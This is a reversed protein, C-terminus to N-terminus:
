KKWYFRNTNTRSYFGSVTLQASPSLTFAITPLLINRATPLIRNILRNWLVIMAFVCFRPRCIPNWALAHDIPKKRLGGKLTSRSLSFSPSCFDKRPCFVTGVSFCFPRNSISKALTELVVASTQRTVLFWCNVQYCFM